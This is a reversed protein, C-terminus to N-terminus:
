RGGFPFRSSFPGQSHHHHHHHHAIASSTPQRDRPCHMCPAGFPAPGFNSLDYNEDISAGASPASDYATWWNARPRVTPGALCAPLPLPCKRNPETTKLENDLPEFVCLLACLVIVYFSAGRRAFACSQHDATHPCHSREHM